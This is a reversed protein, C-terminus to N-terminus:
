LDLPWESVPSGTRSEKEYIALMAALAEPRSHNRDIKALLQRQWRSATIGSRVRNDIVNMLTKAEDDDIGLEALGELAVPLFRKVLEAATHQEPSIGLKTPWLLEAQLGNQSARYFNYEAYRFPFAPLLSNIKKRMGITMGIILAANAMMDLPTPGSPLTRFEIRLHGGSGPDYIARNWQWVTGQQMRLEALRPIRGENVAEMPDEDDCVPLVPPFLRVAEAFLELAGRRIWGHGFPVRAARRWEGTNASRADVAQKFLAIRTEEWLCHELFVPSNGCAAVAIPTILQAANYTDAFAEPNIRLHVQFSTNAGELTVDDCTLDLPEDGDIRIRFPARRIRQLGSNLARYRPLDTMSSGQLQDLRLTPLIGITVVRGGYEAVPAELSRLALEMEKQVTAFPKGTFPVPSLNYELNFRTLELQLRPDVHQVLVDRNVALPKCAGDILDLELEAGLSSEGVGFGDRQLLLELADLNERLRKEFREFEWEEFHDKEIPLGM